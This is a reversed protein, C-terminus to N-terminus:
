AQAGDGGCVPPIFVLLGRDNVEIPARAGLSSGSHGARALEGAGIRGMRHLSRAGIGDGVRSAGGARHWRRTRARHAACGSEAGQESTFSFALSTSPLAAPLGKM